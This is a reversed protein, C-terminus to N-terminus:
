RPCWCWCQRWGQEGEQLHSMAEAPVCTLLRLDATFNLVPLHLWCRSSGRQRDKQSSVGGPRLSMRSSFWFMKGYIGIRHTHKYSCWVPYKGQLLGDLSSVAERISWIAAAETVGTTYGSPRRECATIIIWCRLSRTRSIGSLWVNNSSLYYFENYKGRQKYTTLPFCMLSLQIHDESVSLLPFHWYFVDTM